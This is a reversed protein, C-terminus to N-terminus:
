EMVRAAHGLAVIGEIDDLGDLWQLMVGQVGAAALARLQEQIEAVTGVIRGAARLEDASEGALRETLQAEDRGFIVRTMLTRRIEEPQRGAERALADLRQSRERFLDPTLSVGNWEDAYRAALPLTRLPGNGGVVIPLRGVSIPNPKLEAGDLRYFEGAFSVPGEQRLLRTVVELAEEFRRFRADIDLLDFGFEEHEREMWGAGLGFRLRGPALAHIAAAQWAAIRPDRFSVPAVVPGFAIRSTNTALWTLSVWLELADLHEGTPNTFHDSRYLGAYGAQEAARALRQWRPWNVGDQGEIMLGVDIM